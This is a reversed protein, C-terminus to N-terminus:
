PAESPALEYVAYAGSRYVLTLGRVDDQRNGIFPLLRAVLTDASAEDRLAVARLLNGPLKIVGYASQAGEKLWGRVGRVSRHVDGADAFDQFAVGIAEPFMRGLLLVDRLHVVVVAKRGPVLTRLLRVGEDEPAVLARAFTDFAARQAPDAADGWFAREVEAVRGPSASWAQPVFLPVGLHKDFRMPGAGWHQLQRSTDWWALVPTDPTRHRALVAALAQTEEKPALLHLLPDDVKARWDLLLPGDAAAVVDAEALLREDEAGIVQVTREGGAAAAARAEVYRYPPAAGLTRWALLAALALLALGLLALLVRLAMGRRAGTAPPAARAAALAAM